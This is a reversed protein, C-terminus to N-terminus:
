VPIVRAAAFDYKGLSYVAMMYALMWTDFTTPMRTWKGGEQRQYEVALHEAEFLITLLQKPASTENGRSDPSGVILVDGVLMDESIFEPRMTRLLLTARENEELELRRGDENFYMSCAPEHAVLVELAGGVLDGLKLYDNRDIEETRLDETSDAPIVIVSILM